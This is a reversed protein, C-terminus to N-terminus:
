DRQIVSIFCARHLHRLNIIDLRPCSSVGGATHGHNLLGTVTGHATFVGRIDDYVRVPPAGIHDVAAGVVQEHYVQGGVLDDLDYVQVALRIVGKARCWRADGDRGITATEQHCVDM